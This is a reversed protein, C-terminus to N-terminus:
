LSLAWIASLDIPAGGTNKMELFYSGGPFIIPHYPSFLGGANTLSLLVLDAATPGGLFNLTVGSAGTMVGPVSSALFLSEAFAPIEVIESAGAAIIRRQTRTCLARAPRTGWVLAGKARASLILGEDRPEEPDIQASVTISTAVVTFQTGTKLDM